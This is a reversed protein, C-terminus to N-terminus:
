GFWDFIEDDIEANFALSRREGDVSFPYVHHMLYHPFITMLGQEPEVIYTSHSLFQRSGHTFTIVGDRDKRKIGGTVMNEPVTLWGAGSIHGTHWHTPNYENAVQRNVWVGLLTFKTIQKDTSQKIYRSVVNALYDGLGIRKCAASSIEFEGQIQGALSNGTHSLDKSCTDILENIKLCIDAPIDYLGLPPGFPRVLHNYTSQQSMERGVEGQLQAM